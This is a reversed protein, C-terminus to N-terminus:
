IWILHLLFSIRLVLKIILHKPIVMMTSMKAEMIRVIRVKILMRMLMMMRVRILMRLM